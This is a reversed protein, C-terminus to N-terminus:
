CHIIQVIANGVSGWVAGFLVGGLGWWIGIVASTVDATVVTSDICDARGEAGGFLSNADEWDGAASTWYTSSSVAMHLAGCLLDDDVLGYYEGWVEELENATPIDGIGAIAEIDDLLAVQIASLSAPANAILDYDDFLDGTFGLDTLITDAAGSTIGYEDATFDLLVPYLINEYFDELDFSAGQLTIEDRMTDYAKEMAANHIDGFDAACNFSAFSTRASANESQEEQNEHTKVQLEETSCATFFIFLVFVIFKNANM